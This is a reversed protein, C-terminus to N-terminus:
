GHALIEGGIYLKVPTGVRSPVAGTFQIHSGDDFSFGSYGFKEVLDEAISLSERNPIGFYKTMASVLVDKTAPIKGYYKVQKEGIKSTDYRILQCISDKLHPYAQTDVEVDIIEVPLPLKSIGLVLAKEAPSMEEPDEHNHYQMIEKKVFDFAESFIDEWESM